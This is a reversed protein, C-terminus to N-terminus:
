VKKVRWLRVRQKRVESMQFRIETGRQGKAGKEFKKSFISSNVQCAVGLRTYHKDFMSILGFVIIVM